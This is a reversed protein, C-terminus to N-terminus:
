QFFFFCLTALKKGKEGGRKAKARGGRKRLYSNFNLNEGKFFVKKVKKKRRRCPGGKGSFKHVGAIEEKIPLPSVQRIIRGGPLLLRSNFMFSSYRYRLLVEHGVTVMNPSLLIADYLSHRMM